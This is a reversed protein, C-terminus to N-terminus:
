NGQCDRQQGRNSERTVASASAATMSAAAVHTASPGTAVHAASPRTAVHAGTAPGAATHTRAGHAAAGSDACGGNPAPAATARDRPTAPREVAVASEHVAVASHDEDAASRPPDAAVVTAPLPYRRRPPRAAHPGAVVELAGSGGRGLLSTLLFGNVDGATWDSWSSLTGRATMRRTVLADASERTTGCHQPSTQFATRACCACAPRWTAM